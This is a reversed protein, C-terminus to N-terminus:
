RRSPSRSCAFMVVTPLSPRMPNPHFTWAIVVMVLNGVLGLPLGIRQARKWWDLHEAPRLLYGQRWLYLGFLFIGLVYALFFVFSNVAAWERARLAFIQAFTGRAYIAIAAQINQIPSATPVAVGFLTAVYFGLFLVLVFWYM